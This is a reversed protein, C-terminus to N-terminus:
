NRVISGEYDSMALQRVREMNGNADQTYYGMLARHVTPRSLGTAKILEEVAGHRVRIEKKM